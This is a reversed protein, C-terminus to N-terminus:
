FSLQIFKYKVGEEDDKDLTEFEPFNQPTFFQDWVQDCTEEKDIEEFGKGAEMLNKIDKLNSYIAKKEQGVLANSIFKFKSKSMFSLVNLVKQPKKFTKIIRKRKEEETEKPEEAPKLALAENRENEVIQDYDLQSYYEELKSLADPKEEARKRMYQPPLKKRSQDGTQM